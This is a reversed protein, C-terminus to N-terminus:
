PGCRRSSELGVCKGQVLATARSSKARVLKSSTSWPSSKAEASTRHWTPARSVSPPFFYPLPIGKRRSSRPLTMAWTRMCSRGARMQELQRDLLRRDSLPRCSSWRVTRCRWPRERSLLGGRAAAAPRRTKVAPRAARGACGAEVRSGGWSLGRLLSPSMDSVRFRRRAAARFFRVAVERSRVSGRSSDASGVGEDLRRSGAPQPAGGVSHVSLKGKVM